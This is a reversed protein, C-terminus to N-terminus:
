DESAHSQYFTIATESGFPPSVTIETLVCRNYTIHRHAVFTRYPEIGHDTAVHGGDGDTVARIDLVTTTYMHGVLRTRGVDAVIDGDTMVDRNMGTGNM